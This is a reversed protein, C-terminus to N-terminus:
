VAACDASFKGVTFTLHVEQRVDSDGPLLLSTPEEERFSLSSKDEKLVTFVAEWVKTAFPNVSVGSNVPITFM